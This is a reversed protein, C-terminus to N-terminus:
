VARKRSWFDIVRKLMYDTTFGEEKMNKKFTDLREVDDNSTVRGDLIVPIFDTFGALLTTELVKAIKKDFQWNPWEGKNNARYAMVTDLSMRRDDKANNIGAPKEIKELESNLMDRNYRTGDDSTYDSSHLWAECMSIYREFRAQGQKSFKGLYAKNIHKSLDDIFKKEILKHLTELDSKIGADLDSRERFQEMAKLLDVTNASIEGDANDFVAALIKFVQRTSLYSSMGENINEPLNRYEQYSKTDACTDKVNEGNYTRIKLLINNERRNDTQKDSNLTAGLQFNAAIELVQPDIPKGKLAGRDIEMKYIRIVNDKRLEYPVKIIHTRDIFAENSKNNKFESWESENSHALILGEHPISPMQETPNYNHEQTATLLPHLMKIPAKFMEVFEMIGRNGRCLSGSFEYCDPDSQGLLTAKSIDLKGVLSSIDQTNEDGPETKAIAIHRSEDPYLKVVKFKSIDGHLDILRKHAWPSSKGYLYHPAINLDEADEKSFLGLPNENIPSIILGDKSEFALAYFPQTEMLRKLVEALTSKGGGVPGLFYLIQKSAELGRAANRLFSVLDAKVDYQGIYHKDINPYTKIKRNDYLRSLVPDSKTNIIEPEGIAKLLREAPSLYMDKNVKAEELYEFLALVEPKSDYKQKYRDVASTM